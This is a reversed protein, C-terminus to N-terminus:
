VSSGTHRAPSTLEQGLRGVLKHMRFTVAEVDVKESASVALYAGEGAAILFVFGEDFEILTQRWPARTDGVFEATSRSTSQLGALGAAQRDAEDRSLGPSHARVLGDASLLIAHRSEPVQLVDDLMWALRDNLSDNM